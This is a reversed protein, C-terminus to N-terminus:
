AHRKISGHKKGKPTLISRLANRDRNIRDSSVPEEGSLIRDWIRDVAMKGEKSMHPYSAIQILQKVEKANLTLAHDLMLYYVSAYEAM